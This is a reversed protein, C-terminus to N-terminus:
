ARTWAQVVLPATPLPLERVLRLGAGPWSSTVSEATGPFALLIGAPRLHELLLRPPVILARLSIADFMAGSPLDELAAEVITPRPPGATRAAARLFAARKARPELLTLHIDARVARMPLGPFGAGSGVDLVAADASDSLLRAAVWGEGLHRGLLEAADHVRVLSTRASWEALLRAHALTLELGGASLEVGLLQAVEHVQEPTPILHEVHFM